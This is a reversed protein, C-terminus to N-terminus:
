KYRKNTEIIQKIHDEFSDLLLYYDYNLSHDDELGDKVKINEEELANRLAENLHHKIKEETLKNFKM